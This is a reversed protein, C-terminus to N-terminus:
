RRKLLERRLRLMILSEGQIWGTSNQTIDFNNNGLKHLCFLSIAQARETHGLAGLLSRELKSTNILKSTVMRVLVKGLEVIPDKKTGEMVTDSEVRSQLFSHFMGPEELFFAIRDLGCPTYFTENLLAIFEITLLLLRIDASSDMHENVHSPTLITEIVDTATSALKNVSLQMEPDSSIMIKGASLETTTYCNLMKSLRNNRETLSVDVNRAKLLDLMKLVEKGVSSEDKRISTPALKKQKEVRRKLDYELRHVEHRISKKVVAEGLRHCHEIALTIAIDKVKLNTLPPILMNLSSRIVQETTEVMFALAVAFVGNEANLVGTSLKNTVGNNTDSAELNKVLHPRICRETIITAVNKICQDVVIECINQLEKHQHFFADVLKGRVGSKASGPRQNGSNSLFSSDGELNAGFAGHMTGETVSELNSTIAYPRMKRPTGSSGQLKGGTRTLELMLGHLEEMLPCIGFIYSKTFLCHDRDVFASDKSSSVDSIQQEPLMAHPLRAAKSLGVVDAFLTELEFSILQM